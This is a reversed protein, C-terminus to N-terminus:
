RRRRPKYDDRPQLNVVSPSAGRVRVEKDYYGGYGYSLTNEGAPVELSYNGNADTSTGKRSGKLLVTAGTLPRGEDDLIRGTLTVTAPAAPEPAAAVPEPAPAAAVEEVPRPASAAPASSAAAAPRAASAPLAAVKLTKAKDNAQKDAVEDEETTAPAKEEEIRTGTVTADGLVMSPMVREMVSNTTKAPILAYGIGGLLLVAGVIIGLRTNGSSLAEEEDQLQHDNNDTEPPSQISSM